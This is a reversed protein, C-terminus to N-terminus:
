LRCSFHKSRPVFQTKLYILRRKTKIPQLQQAASIFLIFRVSVRLCLLVNKFWLQHNIKIHYSHFNHRPRKSSSSPIDRYGILIAVGDLIYTQPRESAPNALELGAPRMVTQKKHTLYLDIRRASREDLPTRGLTDNPTILNFFLGSYWCHTPLFLDSYSLFMDRHFYHFSQTNSSRPITTQNAPIRSNKRRWFAQVPETTM